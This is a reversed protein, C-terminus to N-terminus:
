RDIVHGAGLVRRDFVFFACDLLVFVGTLFNFVCGFASGDAGHASGCGAAERSSAEISGADAGSEACSGSDSPSQEFAAGINAEIDSGGDFHFDLAGDRDVSRANLDGFNSRLRTNSLETMAYESFETM